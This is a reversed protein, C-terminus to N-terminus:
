KEQRIKRTKVIKIHKIRIMIDLLTNLHIINVM